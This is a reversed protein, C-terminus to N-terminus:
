TLDELLLSVFSWVFERVDMCAPTQVYVTEMTNDRAYLWLWINLHNHLFYFTVNTMLEGLELM